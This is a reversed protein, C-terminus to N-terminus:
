RKNLLVYGRPPDTLDLRLSRIRYPKSSSNIAVVGNRFRRWAVGAARDEEYSSTLPDGLKTFYINDRIPKQIGPTALFSSQNWLMASAYSYRIARQHTKQDDKAYNLQVFRTRPFLRAAPAVLNTMPVEISEWEAGTKFWPRFQTHGDRRFFTSSNEILDFDAHALFYEPRRYGQNTFVIAHPGLVERLKAIFDGQCRDYELGPHRKQFERQAQVPLSPFGLTDLFVGEYGTERLIARIHEARSTIFNSNAFDYWLAGKGAMAAGGTIPHPALLWSTNRKIVDEWTREAPDGEGPYRASSWQYLVLQTKGSRLIRLQDASLIGGTVLVDFKAFFQLNPVSSIAAYNFAVTKIGSPKTQFQHSTMLACLLSRRSLDVAM